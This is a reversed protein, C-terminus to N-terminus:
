LKHSWCTAPAPPLAVARMLAVPPPAKLYASMKSTLNLLSETDSGQKLGLRQQRVHLRFCLLRSSHSVFSFFRVASTHTSMLPRRKLLVMGSCHPGHTQTEKRAAMSGLGQASQTADVADFARSTKKKEM